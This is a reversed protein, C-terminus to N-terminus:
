TSRAPNFFSRTSCRCTPSKRTPFGKYIRANRHASRDDHASQHRGEPPPVVGLSVTEPLPRHDDLRDCFRSDEIAESGRRGSTRDEGLRDDVVCHGHFDSLRSERQGRGAHEAGSDLPHRQSVPAFGAGAPLQRNRAPEISRYAARVGHLAVSAHLLLPPGKERRRLPQGGSRFHATPAIGSASRLRNSRYENAWPRAFGAGCARFNVSSISITYGLM